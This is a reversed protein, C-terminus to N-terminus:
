PGPATSGISRRPPPSPMSEATGDLIEVGAVQAALTARMGAVPEVAIIRGGLPGLLRTFKGTGAALDVVTRGPGMPLRDAMWSLAKAPYSPRGREYAGAAQDFAKAAEDITV